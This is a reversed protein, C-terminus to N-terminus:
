GSEKLVATMTCRCNIDEDAEGMQGPAPGRADGVVFDENLGVTQGHAERHSDRTRDDLAALWSKSEVVGSQDWALLTGGNQAGVVETRSITEPTSEIRGKMVENVIGEMEPIGAGAEIAEGLKERLLEWTTENVKRAFRQARRELFRIVEEAGIDFGVGVALDDLAEEGVEELLERLLAKAERKFRAIWEGMDFPEVGRTMALRHEGTSAIEEGLIRHEDTNMPPSFKEGRQKLRDLIGERQREFLGVTMKTWRREWRGGRRVFRRWVRAHEEGGFEVGRGEFRHEDTNMPPCPKKEKTGKTNGEHGEHSVGQGGREGEEDADDAGDANDATQGVPEEGWDVPELGKSERWENITIVKMQLQGMERKWQEGEEEQLAPVHSLDLAVLDPAGAGFMPLLQETVESGIFEAEPWMARMWFARDSARVNEYTRQGGVMDLPVKYARCAEELGWQLAGLFEADKPTVGMEKLEMEYRLVGWRHARDVGRFRRDLDKELDTAQEPTFYRGAKPSVVGGMQYGQRFLQWNSKGAASAVDAGLRAASVPSLAGFEDLPNPFRFWVVEHPLFVLPQNEGAVGYEFKEIYKVAHPVVSVKSPKLWWIESPKGMTSGGREVAWYCRGWICMSLETMVLLRNMTWFPNVKRLLSTVESRGVKERRGDEDENFAVFKLTGLADARITACTYIPNSTTLYSGYEAPSYTADDHRQGAEWRGVEAPGASWARVAAKLRRGFRSM